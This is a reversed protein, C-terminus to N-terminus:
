KYCKGAGFIGTLGLIGGRVVTVLLPTLIKIASLNSFFCKRAHLETSDNDDRVANQSRETFSSGQKEWPIEQPTFHSFILLLSLLFLVQFQQKLLNFFHRLKFQRAKLVAKDSQVVIRSRPTFKLTFFDQKLANKGERNLSWHKFKIVCVYKSAKTSKLFFLHRQSCPVAPEQNELGAQSPCSCSWLDGM